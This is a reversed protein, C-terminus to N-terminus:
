TGKATAVEDNQLVGKPPIRGVVKEHATNLGIDRVQLTHGIESGGILYIGFDPCGSM